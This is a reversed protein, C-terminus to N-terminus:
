EPFEYMGVIHNKRPFNATSQDFEIVLHSSRQPLRAHTDGCDDVVVRGLYEAFARRSKTRFNSSVPQVQLLGRESPWSNRLVNDHFTCWVTVPQTPPICEIVNNPHLIACRWMYRPRNFPGPDANKPSRM